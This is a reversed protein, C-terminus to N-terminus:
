KVKEYFNRMTTPTKVAVRRYVLVGEAKIYKEMADAVVDVFRDVFAYYDTETIVGGEAKLIYIFKFLFNGDEMESLDFDSSIVDFAEIKADLIDDMMDDKADSDRNIDVATAMEYAVVVPTIAHIM